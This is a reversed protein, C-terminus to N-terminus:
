AKPEKPMWWDCKLITEITKVSNPRGLMWTSLSYTFSPHLANFTRSRQVPFGFIGETCRIKPHEYTRGTRLDIPVAPTYEGFRCSTCKQVAARSAETSM